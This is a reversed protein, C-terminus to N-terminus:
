RVSFGDTEFQDKFTQALSLDGVVFNERLSEVQNELTGAAGSFFFLSPLVLWFISASLAAVKM